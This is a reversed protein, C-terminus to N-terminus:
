IEKFKTNFAISVRDHKSTNGDVHHSISSPFLLMRGSVPQHYYGSWTYNTFKEVTDQNFHYEHNAAPHSFNINGCDNPTSLYLVGSFVCGPHTHPKNSGGTPNINIWFNDLIQKFGKKLKLHTHLKNSLTEVTDRFEKFINLDNDLNDSQWGSVNSLHRGNSQTKLNYSYDILKEVDITTQISLLPVSFIDVIADEFKM